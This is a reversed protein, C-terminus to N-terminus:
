NAPRQSRMSARRASILCIRGRLDHIVKDDTLDFYFRPMLANGYPPPFLVSKQLGFRHIIELQCQHCGILRGLCSGLPCGKLAHQRPDDAPDREALHSKTTRAQYEPSLSHWAADLVNRLLAITEPDYSGSESVTRFEWKKGLRLCNKKGGNPLHRDPVPCM